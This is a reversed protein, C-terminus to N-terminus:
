NLPAAAMMALRKEVRAICDDCVMSEDLLMGWQGLNATVLATFLCPAEIKAGCGGACDVSVPMDPVGPPTGCIGCM